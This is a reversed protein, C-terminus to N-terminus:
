LFVQGFHLFSILLSYCHQLILELINSEHLMLTEIAFLDYSLLTVAVAHFASCNQIIYWISNACWRGFISIILGTDAFSLFMASFVNELLVLFSLYWLRSIVIVSSWCQLVVFYVTLVRWARALNFSLFWFMQFGFANTNLLDISSRILAWSNICWLLEQLFSLLLVISHSLTLRHTSWNLSPHIIFLLISNVITLRFLSIDKIFGGDNLRTM